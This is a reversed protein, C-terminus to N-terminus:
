RPMAVVTNRNLCLLQIGPKWTPTLVESLNHTLLPAMRDQLKLALTQCDNLNIQWELVYMM